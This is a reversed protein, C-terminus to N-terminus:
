LALVGVRDCLVSVNSPILTILSFNINSNRIQLERNANAEVASVIITILLEM